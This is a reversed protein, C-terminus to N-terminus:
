AVQKTLSLLGPMPSAVRATSALFPTAVSTAYGRQQPM